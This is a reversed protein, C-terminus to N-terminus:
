AQEPTVEHAELRRASTMLTDVLQSRMEPDSDIMVEEMRDVALECGALLERGADTLRAPHVRAHNPSPERVILNKRELHRIVESMAQPTIYARRALQANSLGGRNGLLWLVTYQAVTVGFPELTRSLSRRVSRELFAVAYSLRPGAPGDPPDGSM